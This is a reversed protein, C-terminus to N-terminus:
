MPAPPLLNKSQATRQEVGREILDRVPLPKLASLAARGKGQALSPGKKEGAVATSHTRGGFRQGIETHTAATHKRALYMAVHASPEGDLRTKEIALHGSELGLTKYVAEEVDGLQVLRISHRLVDGLAERALSWISTSAMPMRM